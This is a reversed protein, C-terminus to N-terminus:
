HLVFSRNQLNTIALYIITNGGPRGFANATSSRDCANRHVTNVPSRHPAYGVGTSDSVVYPIVVVTSARDGSDSFSSPAVIVSNLIRGVPRLPHRARNRLYMFLDEFEVDFAHGLQLTVVGVDSGTYLAVDMLAMGVGVGVVVGVDVLVVAALSGVDYGVAVNRDLVDFPFPVVLLPRAVKSM